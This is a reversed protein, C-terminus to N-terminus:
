WGASESKYVDKITDNDDTVLTGRLAEKWKSKWLSAKEVSSSTGKIEYYTQAARYCLIRYDVIAPFPYADTTAEMDIPIYQYKVAVSVSAPAECYVTSAHQETNVEAGGYTVSVLKFFTKTTASIAFSSYTDLTVNETFYLPYYKRAIINKAENLASIIRSEITSYEDDDIDVKVYDVTQTILTQLTIAM